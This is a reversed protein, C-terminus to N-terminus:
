MMWLAFAILFKKYVGYILYFFIRSCLYSGILNQWWPLNWMRKFAIFMWPLWFILHLMEFDPGFIVNSVPAMTDNYFMFQFPAFLSVNVNDPVWGMRRPLWDILIHLCFFCMNYVMFHTALILAAGYYKLKNFFFIFFILAIFPVILFVLSKSYGSVRHDFEENFLAVAAFKTTMVTDANVFRASDKQWTPNGEPSYLSSKIRTVRDRQEELFAERKKETLHDIGSIVANDVPKMFGFMKHDSLTFYYHDGQSPTYDSIHSFHLAFYFILNVVLFLQIPKAYPVTLGNLNDKTIKGPKIFNLWITKLVKSEFHYFFDLIQHFFHGVTLHKEQFVKEGCVNCIKGRFANGCNRCEHLDDGMYVKKITIKSLSM